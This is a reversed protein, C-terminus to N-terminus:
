KDLAPLPMMSETAVKVDSPLGSLYVYNVTGAEVTLDVTAVLTNTEDGDANTLTFNFTYTQPELLFSYNNELDGFALFENNTEVGAADYINPTLLSDTAVTDGPATFVARIDLNKTSETPTDGSGHFFYVQGKGAPPAEVHYTAGETYTFTAMTTSDIDSSFYAAAFFTIEDYSVADVSKSYLVEGTDSNKLEINRKVSTVKMFESFHNQSINSAVREGDVYVDINDVNALLNGFRMMAFPIKVPAITPEDVCSGLILALALIGALVTKHLSKSM